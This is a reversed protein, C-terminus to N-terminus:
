YHLYFSVSESQMNGADVAKPHEMNSKMGKGLCIVHAKFMLLESLTQAVFPDCGM